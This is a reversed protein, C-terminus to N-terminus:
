FEFLYSKRSWFGKKKVTNRRLTVIARDRRIWIFIGVLITMKGKALKDRSLLFRPLFTQHSKQWEGQLVWLQPFPLYFKGSYTVLLSPFCTIQAKGIEIEQYRSGHIKGISSVASYLLWKSCPHPVDLSHAMYPMCFWKNQGQRPM